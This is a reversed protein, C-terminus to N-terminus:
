MEKPAKIGLMGLGNELVQSTAAVMKLRSNRLKLDQEKICNCNQYFDNFAQALVILYRALVSPKYHAAAEELTNQYESLLTALRQEQPMELKTYDPKGPKGAKKLISNARANTYQIYPGTEGNFDLVKEKDFVVDRIRDHSLDWFIVSGIGVEEAVKKKNKLGPNKENITKEALAVVEDLIEELFIIRGQRTSMKGEPLFFLGFPIHVAEEKYGLLHMIRFLQKFHLSQESGVVYLLKEPKYTKSRYSFAAIDRTMYLSSEDSKQILAPTIDEFKVVKAGQDEELLKKQELMKITPNLKDNYFSEGEFSDFEVNLRRYLKKFEKLSLDKFQRWLNLAEKDKNELKSFWMRAETEIDPDKEATEHFKVYLKLLYKVPNKDLEKQNGWKKYAVILKGFQTGWDGLHNIGICKYGQSQYIKSISNGIVTSRLHGVGFPKAINPSSFDIVITKRNTKKCGYNDKEKLIKNIIEESLVSKNIFFNVYPGVAVAKLIAKNPKIKEALEKAILQPNKKLEKALIFCPLAYDGLEPQPPVELTPINKLLKGLVKKIENEFQM